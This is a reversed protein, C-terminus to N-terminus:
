SEYPTSVARACCWLDVRKVGGQQKLTRAVENATAGTTFLDDILTVHQYPLSSTQFARHLNHRRQQANLSAQAATPVIKRCEQLLYPKNTLRSLEKTLIAAQNFGRTRLRQNHLPIPILCESRDDKDIANLMVQTLVSSLYLAAEYKFAHILTRLPETFRYAIYVRDLDPPTVSCAGCVAPTPQPLPIACSHCAPGLPEFLAICAACIAHQHRHYQHCIRCIVPIRLSIRSFM